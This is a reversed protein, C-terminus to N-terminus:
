FVQYVANLEFARSNYNKIDSVVSEPSETRRLDYTFIFELDIAKSASLSVKTAIIDRRDKRGAHFPDQNLPLNSQYYRLRREFEFGVQWNM